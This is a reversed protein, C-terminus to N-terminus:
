VRCVSVLVRVRIEASQLGIRYWVGLWLLSKNGVAGDAVLTRGGDFGRITRTQIGAGM